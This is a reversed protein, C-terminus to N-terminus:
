DVQDGLLGDVAPPLFDSLYPDPVALHDRVGAFLEGVDLREGEDDFLVFAELLGDSDVALEDPLQGALEGLELLLEVGLVLLLGIRQDVLVQAVGFGLLCEFPKFDVGVQLVDPGVLVELFLEHGFEVLEAEGPPLFSHM